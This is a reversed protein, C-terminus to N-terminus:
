RRSKGLTALKRTGAGLWTVDIDNRDTNEELLGLEALKRKLAEYNSSNLRKLTSLDCSTLKRCDNWDESM